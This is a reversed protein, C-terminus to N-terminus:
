SRDHDYALEEPAVDSSKGYWKDLDQAGGVGGFWGKTRKGGTAKKIQQTAKKTVKSATKQVKSATKEAKKATKKGFVAQTQVREAAKTQSVETRKLSAGLFESRLVNAM